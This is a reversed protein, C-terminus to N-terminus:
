FVDRWGQNLSSPVALFLHQFLNGEGITLYIDPTFQSGPSGAFPGIVDKVKLGIYRNGNDFGLIIGKRYPSADLLRKIIGPYKVDRTHEAAIAISEKEM